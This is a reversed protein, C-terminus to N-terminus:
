HAIVHLVKLLLSMQTNNSKRQANYCVRTLVNQDITLGICTHIGASIGIEGVAGGVGCGGGVVGRWRRAGGERRGRIRRRIKRRRRKRENFLRTKALVNQDISLWACTHIGLKIRIVSIDFDDIQWSFIADSSCGCFKHSYWQLLLPTSKYCPTCKFDNFYWFRSDTMFFYCRYFLCLFYMLMLTLLLFQNQLLLIKWHVQEM